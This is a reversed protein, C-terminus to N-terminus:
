SAENAQGSDSNCHNGNSEAASDEKSSAVLLRTSEEPGDSCGNLHMGQPCTSAPTTPSVPGGHTTWGIDVATDENYNYLSTTAAVGFGTAIPVTNQGSVFSVKSRAM